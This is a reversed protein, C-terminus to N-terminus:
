RLYLHHWLAQRRHLRPGEVIDSLNDGIKASDWLPGLDKLLGADVLEKRFAPWTNIFLDATEGSQLAARIAGRADGQTTLDTRKFNVGPNAKVFADELAKIMEEESGAAWNLLVLDGSVADAAWSPAAFAFMAAVSVGAILARRGIGPKTKNLEKM